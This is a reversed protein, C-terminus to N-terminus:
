KVLLVVVIGIGIMILGVIEGVLLLRYKLPLEKMSRVFIMVPNPRKLKSQNRM